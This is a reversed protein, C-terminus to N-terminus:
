LYSWWMLTVTGFIGIAMLGTMILVFLATLGRVPASRSRTGAFYLELGLLPLLYSGYSLALDAPGSLTQNNWRPGQNLILWAMIMVRFFWVGNVAIFLRMAWQRHEDIRRKMALRLAMAAFFLILVGNITTPWGSVDSLRTGRGWVLWIGGVAMFVALLMFLRGNWRHLAPFRRRLPPILQMLGGFTIVAALLVHLAFMVNGPGDGEIYGDIIPRDNWGAYNGTATRGGYYVAIYYIFALQGFAATLFWIVGSSRLLTLAAGQPRPDHRPSQM